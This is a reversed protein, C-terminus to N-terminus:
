PAPPSNVGSNKAACLRYASAAYNARCGNQGADSETKDTSLGPLGDSIKSQFTTGSSSPFALQRPFGGRSDQDRGGVIQRMDRTKSFALSFQKTELEVLLVILISGSTKWLPNVVTIGPIKKFDKENETVIIEIGHELMCAAILADWFPARVSEVIEMAKMITGANRDIVM